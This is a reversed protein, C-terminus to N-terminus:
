AAMAWIRQFICLFNRFICLFISAKPIKSNQRRFLSSHVNQAEQSFKHLELPETSVWLIM